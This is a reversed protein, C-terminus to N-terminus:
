RWSQKLQRLAHLMRNLANPKSLQIMCLDEHHTALSRKYQADGGLFDYFDYGKTLYHEIALRHVILGPKYQNDQEYHIGSLYFYVQIDHLYNYLVAICKDGHYLGLLDCAEPWHTEIFQEHFQVFEPNYFGSDQGWRQKHAEGALTFLAKAESQKTAPRLALPGAQEYAKQSKKVQYRTNRSITSLYPTNKARLSALDVGYCPSQWVDKILCDSFANIDERRGQRIAGTHIHQAKSDQSFAEFVAKLGLEEFGKKVLIDNYEIWIQDKAECGTRMLHIHQEPLVKFRKRDKKVILTLGFLEQDQYLALVHALHGYLTLWNQVWAWSLFFNTNAHQELGRWDQELNAYQAVATCSLAISM